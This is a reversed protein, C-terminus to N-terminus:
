PPATSSRVRCGPKAEVTWQRRCEHEVMRCDVGERCIQARDQKRFSSDDSVSTAASSGGATSQGRRSRLFSHRRLQVSAARYTPARIVCSVEECCRGGGSGAREGSLRANRANSFACCRMAARSRAALSGIATIPMPQRTGPASLGSANQRRIRSPTSAILVIGGSRNSISANNSGSGSVARRCRSGSHRSGERHRGIRSRIRRCKAALPGLCRDAVADAARLTMPLAPFHRVPAWAGEFSGFGADIEAEAGVIIRIQLDAAAIRRQEVRM